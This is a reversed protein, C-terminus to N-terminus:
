FEVPLPEGRGTRETLLGYTEPRRHIEYRFTGNKYFDGLTLDIDSLIVSDKEDFVRSVIEGTPAIIATGGIMHHGDEYGCKAVTGVWASSQYAGAQCSLLHHFMALHPQEDGGPSQDPTNFGIVIVDVDQLALTRYAEPWRRDNCILMGVEVGHFDFVGFGLDGVEFYSKELHQYPADPIHELHGPLHIKRYKGVIEGTKDVLIQTNFRHGDETLEAYGFSFGVEHEKAFDFLPQVAPNPMATEYYEDATSVDERYTRPFFTTLTLEPFVVLDAGGAAAKEFMALMRGVVAERTDETNIGAMQALALTFMRM